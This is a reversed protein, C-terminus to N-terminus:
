DAVELANEVYNSESPRRDRKTDAVEVELADAIVQDGGCNVLTKPMYTQSEVGTQHRRSRGRRRGIVQNAADSRWQRRKSRNKSTQSPLMGSSAENSLDKVEQLRRGVQNLM